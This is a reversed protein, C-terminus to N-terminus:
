KFHNKKENYGIFNLFFTNLLSSRDIVSAQMKLVKEFCLIFLEDNQYSKGQQICITLGKVLVM